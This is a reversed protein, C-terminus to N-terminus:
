KNQNYEIVEDANYMNQHTTIVVSHRTETEIWPINEHTLSQSRFLVIDRQKLDVTLNLDRFHLGGGTSWKGVPVVVCYGGRFDQQDVHPYSPSNINIAVLSWLGFLRKEVPLKEAKIRLGPYHPEVVKAVQDFMNQNNTIWSTAQSTTTKKAKVIHKTYCRWHGFHYVQDLKRKRDHDPTLTQRLTEISEFLAECMRIPICNRFYHIIPSGSM